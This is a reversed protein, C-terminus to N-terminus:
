WGGSTGGSSGGGWGGSTSSTGSSTSPGYGQEQRKLREITQAAGVIEEAPRVTTLQEKLIGGAGKEEFRREKERQYQAAEGGRAYETPRPDILLSDAGQTQDAYVLEEGVRYPWFLSLGQDAAIRLRNVTGPDSYRRETSEGEVRFPKGTFPDQLFAQSAIMGYWPPLVGFAQRVGSAETLANLLPNARSLDIALKNDDFYFQGLAFPMDTGLTERLEETKLRALNGLLGTMVPHKVPMTYFAFHLSFRLYGYFMVNRKLLQREKATFTTYDGLFDSVRKANRELLKPDKALRALQEDPDLRMMSAMRSQAKDLKGVSEGMRRYKERNLEKYLIARRFFNNQANDARFLADLPNAKGMRRGFPSEKVGRYAMAFHRAGAPLNEMAAGYKTQRVDSAFHGVGLYPALEAKTDDPLRKWWAAAKAATIPGAGALASLGANSIVQFALWPPNVALLIRASKQTAIDFTRGLAGGSAATRANLEDAVEKPIVTFKGGTSQFEAPDIEYVSRQIAQRLQPSDLLDPNDAVEDGKRVSRAAEERFIKHNVVAVQSPSIGRDELARTIEGATKNRGWAYSNRAITNTVLTWNHRRKINRALGRIVVEPSDSERGLRYLKGKYKKPLHSAGRSGGLAFEAFRAAGGAKESPVYGAETLGRKRGAERVRGIWEETSEGKEGKEGKKRKIGLFDAQQQYRRILAQETALAPDRPRLTGTVPDGVALRKERRRLSDAVKALQPTFVEDADRVLDFLTDAQNYRRKGVDGVKQREANIQRIRDPLVARATEADRIGYRLATTLGRQEARSLSGVEKRAGRAIQRAQEETMAIFARGQMTGMGKRTGRKALYASLPVVEHAGIDAEVGRRKGAGIRKGSAAARRRDLARQASTAILGRSLEQERTVDAGTRLLPRPTTAFREAGAGLKGSRALSGAVRSVPPAVILSDLAYPTLGHEQVTSRFTDFDGQVLSGYRDSYDAKVQNWITEAKGTDGSVLAAGAEGLAIVASPAGLAIDRASEATSKLTEGPREAFARGFHYPAQAVNRTTEETSIGAAAVGAGTTGLLAGKTAFGAEATGTHRRKPAKGKGIRKQAKGFRRVNLRAAGRQALTGGARAGRVARAASQTAAAAAEGARAAAATGLVRRGAVGALGPVASLGVNLAINGLSPNETGYIAQRAEDSIDAGTTEYIASGLLGRELIGPRQNEEEYQRTARGIRLQTRAAAPLQQRLVPVPTRMGFQTTPLNLSRATTRITRRRAQQRTRGGAGSTRLLTDASTVRHRKRKRRRDVTPVYSEATPM